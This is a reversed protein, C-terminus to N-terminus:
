NSVSSADYSDRACVVRNVNRRSNRHWTIYKRSWAMRSPFKPRVSSSTSSSSRSGAMRSSQLSRIDKSSNSEV